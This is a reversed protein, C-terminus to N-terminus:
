ARTNIRVIGRLLRGLIDAGTIIRRESGWLLIIDQDIVDDGTREPRVELQGIIDGLLTTRDETILPRHCFDYPSAPGDGFLAARIFGDADLVLRPYGADNTIIVWKKQSRNVMQLFPDDPDPSYEPFDPLDLEEPLAIISDPDIPEGEDTIPLDDIALFNLAGMGEFLDVDAKDSEIHKKIFERLHGERFYTIGERGLWADLALATPKAVPSLIVQYFRLLPSLFSVMRLANRSFYAQPIIEGVMTIVVTSFLFAIVGTMVSNSLIALCTNVAVNGWLITALLFHADRRLELVRTALRNGAAVETELRLRTLGFVALNLGSFIGSHVLCLGIGLWTLTETTM